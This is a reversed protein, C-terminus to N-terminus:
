VTSSPQDPQLLHFLGGYTTEQLAASHTLLTRLPSVSVPHNPRCFMPDNYRCFFLETYFDHKSKLYPFLPTHFIQNQILYPFLPTHFLKAQNPRCLM